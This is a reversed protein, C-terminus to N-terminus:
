RCTNARLWDYTALWNLRLNDIRPVQFAFRQAPCQGYSELCLGDGTVVSENDEARWDSIKRLDLTARFDGGSETRAIEFFCGDKTSVLLRLEASRLLAPSTGILKWDASGDLEGSAGDEIGFLLYAVAEEATRPVTGESVAVGATLIPAAFLFAALPLSACRM